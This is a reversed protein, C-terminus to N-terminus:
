ATSCNPSLATGEGDWYKGAVTALTAAEVPNPTKQALATLAPPFGLDALPKLLGAGDPAKKATQYAAYVSKFDCGVAAKASPAFFGAIAGILIFIATKKLKDM